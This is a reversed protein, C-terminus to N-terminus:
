NEDTESAKSVTDPDFHLAIKLRSIKKAECGMEDIIKELCEKDRKVKEISDEKTSEKNLELIAAELDAIEEICVAKDIKLQTEYRDLSIFIGFLTTGINVMTLIIVMIIQYPEASDVIETADALFTDDLFLLRASMCREVALFIITFLVVGFGAIFLLVNVKKRTKYKLYTIGQTFGLPIIDLVLCISATVLLNIKEATNSFLADVTIKSTLFDVTLILLVVMIYVCDNMWISMRVGHERIAKNNETM